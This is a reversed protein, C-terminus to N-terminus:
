KIDLLEIDFVLTGRPGTPPNGYALDAPIWFRRKEGLVMLQVGEVWGPIVRTLPFEAPEGRQVSSDFMEGDTMWGTYHVTVTSNATPHITGTGIKLVRSALGSPTAIADAPAAAVDAPAPIGAPVSSATSTAASDSSSCAASGTLVAAIAFASLTRASMGLM